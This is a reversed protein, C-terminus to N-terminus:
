LQTESIDSLIPPIAHGPEGAADLLIPPTTHEPERDVDPLIPPTTHGPEKGVDHLIPPTTQGPERAVDPLIPPTTHGPERAVDPLIPPTTHGPERAVNPLIPPKTHRPERGIDHLIPPTTHEPERVVDPLITPPVHGSSQTRNNTDPTRRLRQFLKAVGKIIVSDYLLPNIISNIPLILISLLTYWPSADITGMTHLFCTVIFPVWCLFDTLIVFSIKRQLRDNRKRAVNAVGQSSSSSSASTILFVAVYSISIVVFCLFNIALLSWTYVTQPEHSSVFFKFLCVPDNGYFGLTRQSIGGYSSTFMGNIISRLIGWSLTSVELRIRGYYPALILKLSMKTTFGKLFNIDPFYLANVFTDEFRPMLPIAAIAVSSGVVFLSISGVLVYSKRNVPSPASLRQYVKVLRTVSLITMTFLSIQSGVTSVVGLISCYPSSLWDIQISCFSSGYYFDVVALSLLYGGVLWDGFSILIILVKVILATSTKACKISYINKVLVVGNLFLSLVGILWSSIKLILGNILERYCCSSEDSSDLCDYKGDCVSSLPIYLKSYYTNVNCVFHNHCNDEDTGDGCDDVLNCVKSYTVCNSEGCVFLNKVKFNNEGKQVIVLNGDSSISYLKRKLINSCKNSSIPSSPLPCKADHCKGSCSLYVYQEGYMYKCSVHKIPVYLNNPQTGLVEVTPYTLHECQELVTNLNQHGLICYHLYNVDGVKVTSYKQQELTSGATRCIRNGGQCSLIEDCLSKIEVYLPYGSPCIYVDECKDGNYITFYTYDCHVWISIDEDFGGVCDEIGDVIWAIPLLLLTQYHFKRKCERSTIQSCLASKEDSGGECDTINNCLQHKHIYCGPSPTVCQVDMNDDCVASTNSHNIGSIASMTRECIIHQSVNSVYGNIPCQLPALKADSCNTQDLKSACM